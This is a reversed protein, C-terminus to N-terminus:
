CAGVEECCDQCLMRRGALGIGYDVGAETKECRTCTNYVGTAEIAEIAKELRTKEDHHEKPMYGGVNNRDWFSKHEKKLDTLEALTHM